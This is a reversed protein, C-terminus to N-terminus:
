PAAVIEAHDREDYRHYGRGVADGDKVVVAGVM